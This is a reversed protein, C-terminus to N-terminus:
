LFRIGSVGPGFAQERRGFELLQGRFVSREVMLRRVDDLLPGSLEAPVVVEIGSRDGFQRNSRRQHLAVPQGRYRFLRIGYSVADRHSSPGTELRERDVAGVRFRSWAASGQIMDGFTQHHRMDGGGVGVTTGGGNKEVLADVAVDLNVVARGVM